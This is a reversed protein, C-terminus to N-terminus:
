SITKSLQCSKTSMTYVRVTSFTIQTSLGMKMIESVLCFIVDSPPKEWDGASSQFLCWESTKRVDQITWVCMTKTGATKEKNAERPFPRHM